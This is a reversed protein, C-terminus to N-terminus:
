DISMTHDLIESRPESAVLGLIKSLVENVFRRDTSVVAVGIKARQWLDHDGVEAVSANFRARIRGKISAVVRRKAKLSNSEAIFLDIM